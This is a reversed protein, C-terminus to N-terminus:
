RERAVHHSNTQAEVQDPGIITAEIVQGSQNNRVAIVEDRLGAELAIGSASLFMNSRRFVMSVNDGKEILAPKHVEASRVPHGARLPIRATQGILDAPDSLMNNRLLARRYRVWTLDDMEIEQGPRIPRAPVPMEVIAHLRGRVRFHKATPDGAPAAVVATMREGSADTTLEVVAVTPPQDVPIHIQLQPNAMAIEFDDGFGKAQLENQLAAVINSATIVTSLREVVTQDRRSTPRWDLGYRQAVRALWNADFVARRGPEPAYAVVTTGYDGAPEFFDGLRLTDGDAVIQSRLNPRIPGDAAAVNPAIILSLGLAFLFIRYM